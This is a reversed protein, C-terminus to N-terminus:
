ILDILSFCKTRLTRTTHLYSLASLGQCSNYKNCMTEAYTGTTVLYFSVSVEYAKNMLLLHGPQHWRDATYEIQQVYLVALTSSALQVPSSQHQYTTAQSITQEDRQYM